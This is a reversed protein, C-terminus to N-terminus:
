HINERERFLIEMEERVIGRVTEEAVLNEGNWQMMDETVNFIIETNPPTTTTIVDGGIVSEYDTFNISMQKIPGGNIFDLPQISKVVM